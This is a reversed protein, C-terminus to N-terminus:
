TFSVTDRVTFSVALWLMPGDMGWSVGASRTPGDAGGLATNAQVRFRGLVQETLDLWAGDRDADDTWRGASVDSPTWVLASFTTLVLDTPLSGTAFPQVRQPSSDPWVALHYEGANSLLKELSWPAYLHVVADNLVDIHTQLDAAWAECITRLSM